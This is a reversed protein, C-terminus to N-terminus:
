LITQIIQDTYRKCIVLSTGATGNQVVWLIQWELNFPTANVLLLRIFEFCLLYTLYEIEVKHSLSICVAYLFM